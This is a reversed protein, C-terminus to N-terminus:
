ATLETDRSQIEPKYQQKGAKAARSFAHEAFLWAAIKIHNYDRHLCSLTISYKNLRYRQNHASM